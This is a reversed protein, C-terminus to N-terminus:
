SRRIEHPICTEEPSTSVCSLFRAQLDQADIGGATAILVIRTRRERAGWADDLTLDVRKGVVQLVARRDPSDSTYIVGKARYVTAPLRSAVEGLAELSMPSKSEFNWTGYLRSLEQGHDHHHHPGPVRRPDPGSGDLSSDARSPDFRGVSLLIETPVECRTAEVLRYRYLYSDLWARVRLVQDRDVLDVKNLIIMDAFAIQWLKLESLEPAALAQEADVVCLISDLRIRDRFAPSAFTLAIGSPDAMGSAELLVYEPREPRGLVSTVAEILDDRISCCVCGNALSVVNDEVGTVLDADINISGFDNVLVAVRLGHDGNLIRNLLTTKGAGLFGTLITLPVSRAEAILHHGTEPMPVM